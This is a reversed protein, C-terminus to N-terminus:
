DEKKANLMNTLFLQTLKAALRYHKEKDIKKHVIQGKQIIPEVGGIWFPYFLKVRESFKGYLSTVFSTLSLNQLNYSVIAGTNM